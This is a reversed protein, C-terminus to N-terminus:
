HFAVQEPTYKQSEGQLEDITKPILKWTTYGVTDSREAMENAIM